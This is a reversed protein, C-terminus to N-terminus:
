QYQLPIKTQQQLKVPPALWQDGTQGVDDQKALQTWPVEPRGTKRGTLGIYEWTSYRSRSACLGYIKLCLVPCLDRM